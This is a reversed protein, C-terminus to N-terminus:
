RVAASAPGTLLSTVIALLSLKMRPWTFSAVLSRFEVAGDYISRPRGEEHDIIIPLSDLAGSAGIKRTDGTKRLLPVAYSGRAGFTIAQESLSSASASVCRNRPHVSRTTTTPRTHESLANISGAYIANADVSRPHYPGTCVRVADKAKTTTTPV